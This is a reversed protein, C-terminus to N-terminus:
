ESEGDIVYVDREWKVNGKRDHTKWYLWLTEPSGHEGKLETGVEYVDKSTCSGTLINYFRAEVFHGDTGQLGMTCGSLTKVRYSVADNPPPHDKASAQTVALLTLALVTRLRM